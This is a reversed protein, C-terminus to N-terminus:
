SVANEQVSRRKRLIRKAKATVKKDFTEDSTPGYNRQRKIGFTGVPSEYNEKQQTPYQNVDLIQGKKGCDVVWNYSVIPIRLAKAAKYTKRLGTKFILHSSENLNKTISGGLAIIQNKVHDSRNDDGKDSLVEVFATVNQFIQLKGPFIHQMHIVTVLYGCAVILSKFTYLLEM